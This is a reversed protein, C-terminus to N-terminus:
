SIQTTKSLPKPEYSSKLYLIEPKNTEMKSTGRNHCPYGVASAWEHFRTSVTARSIAIKRDVGGSQQIFDPVVDTQNHPNAMNGQGDVLECVIANNGVKPLPLMFSLQSGATLLIFFFALSCNPDSKLDKVM